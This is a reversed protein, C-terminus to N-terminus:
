GGIYATLGLFEVLEELKLVYDDSPSQISVSHSVCELREYKAEGLKYYPLLHVKVDMGLETTVFKATAKINDVSDNHGPM